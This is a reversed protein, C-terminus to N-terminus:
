GAQRKERLVTLVRALERRAARFKSPKELQGTTRQLRLAFLQDALEKERVHLDGEGKERLERLTKGTKM